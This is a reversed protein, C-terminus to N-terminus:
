RKWICIVYNNWDKIRYSDNNGVIDISDKLM